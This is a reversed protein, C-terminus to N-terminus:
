NDTSNMRFLHRVFRMLIAILNYAFTIINAIFFLSFRKCIGILNQAFRVGIGFLNLNQAFRISFAKLYHVFRISKSILIKSILPLYKLIDVLKIPTLGFWLGVVGGSNYIFRDFDTKYTETYAIRPTKQPIFELITENSLLKTTEIKSNFTILNCKPKTLYNCEAIIKKVTDITHPNHTHTNHTHNNVVNSIKCFKYGNKLIDRDFYVNLNYFTSCGFSQNLLKFFCNTTIFDFYDEGFNKLEEDSICKDHISSLKRVSFSSFTLKKRANPQPTFATKTIPNSHSLYITVFLIEFPNLRLTIKEIKSKDVIGSYTLDNIIILYPNGQFVGTDVKSCNILKNSIVFQCTKYIKETEAIRHFDNLRNDMLLQRLGSEFILQKELKKHKMEPYIKMLEDLNSLMPRKTIQIKPLFMIEKVEFRTIIEFDLYITIIQFLQYLMLISFVIITLKSLIEDFKTSIMEKFKLVILTLKEYNILGFIRIIWKKSENALILAFDYVSIGFWMSLLGGVSCLYEVLNMKALYTFIVEYKFTKFHGLVKIDFLKFQNNYIFVIYQDLYHENYCNNKCVKELSKMEIKSDFDCKVSEPCIHSFNREDFARYAWRKNCGCKAFEKRELHKVVCDERSNYGNVLKAERRYDYCDTSHPFPM